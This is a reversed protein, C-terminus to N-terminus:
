RMNVEHRKRATWETIVVTLFLVTPVALVMGVVGGLRDGIILAILTVIPSLGVTQRMVFPVIFHNELLQVIIYLVLVALGLPTSVSFGIIVAPILSLIPGINPVVELLGALVALPLAYTMGLMQLGVFVLAGVVVMLVIESGLWGGVRKEARRVFGTVGDEHLTPIAKLAVRIVFMDDLLLYFSFFLTSVVFFINAFINSVLQFSRSTIEPVYQSLTNFQIVNTKLRTNLGAVISPLNNVFVVTESVIPPVILVIMGIICLVFFFFVSIVAANRSFGRQQLFQVPRRLGSAIIFALFLSFILDRTVWVLYFGILTIAISLITKPAIEVRYM